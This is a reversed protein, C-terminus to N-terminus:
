GEPEESASIEVPEYTKAFIEPKCPYFEGHVGKIIWDGVDAVHVGELTTIKFKGDAPDIGHGCTEFPQGSVGLFACLDDLVAASDQLQIAEIVVPKKRFRPM